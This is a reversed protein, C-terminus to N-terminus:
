IVGGEVARLADVPSERKLFHAPLIAALIQIIVGLGVIGLAYLPQQTVHLAQIYYADPLPIAILSVGYVAIVGVLIGVGAGLMALVFAMRFLIGMGSQESLGLTYLVSFDARKELVLVSLMGYLTLSALAFVLAIVGIVARRELVLAGFLAQNATKWTRVPGWPAFVKELSLLVRDIEFPNKLLAWVSTFGSQGQLLLGRLDRESMMMWKLDVAYVGSECVGRVVFRKEVPLPNGFPDIDEMPYVLSITENLGVELSNALERGLVIGPLGNVDKSEADFAQWM